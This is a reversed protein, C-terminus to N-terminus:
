FFECYPHSNKYIYVFPQLFDKLSQDWTASNHEDRASWPNLCRRTNVCARKPSLCVAKWASSNTVGEVNSSRGSLIDHRRSTTSWSWSCVEGVVGRFHRAISGTTQPMEWCLLLFWQKMKLYCEQCNWTGVELFQGLVPLTWRSHIDQVTVRFSQHM